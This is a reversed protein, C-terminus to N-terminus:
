VEKAKGDSRAESGLENVKAVIENEVSATPILGSSQFGATFASLSAFPNTRGSADEM